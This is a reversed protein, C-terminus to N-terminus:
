SAEHAGAAAPVLFFTAALCGLVSVVLLGGLRANAPVQSVVLVGFGLAVALADVVIAPGTTSLAGAMAELGLQGARCLRRHRSLLHIAFDVGVGLTMGAFMSTAVGLPIGLWGMAAFISLVAAAPPLVCYLGWRLSRGLVAALAFIGLLSLGLSSLQTAVVADILAGSVAADGGIRLGLGHPALHRREYDRIEAELRREAAYDSGALYVTVLGRAFAGDVLQGLREEGRIRGYSQWRREAQEPDGPLRRSARGGPRTMFGVTALFRAPGLVGGVGPRTALFAELTGIRALVSPVLFPQSRIEYGLREGDRPRLWMRGSGRRRPMTLVVGGDRRDARAIWTSWERAPQAEGGALRFVRIRSGALRPGDAAAPLTLRHGDLAGAEVEGALRPAEAEVELLLRHSGLFQQDFRRTARAFASAPDFGALWSDQVEVRRVGDVAVVALVGAAALVATRRRRGLAALWAFARGLRDGGSRRPAVWRKPPVLVLVAPVVSLSWLLCVLVGFTTFLGFLRVPGIPSLTFSLFAVATTLSTKIVPPAMEDLTAGVLAAPQKGPDERVRDVFRRFIHIEDALGVATLIVPLVATTLYVPVELWGMLGFVIVLCGGAEALPLLAAAPRRFAALFVLGMVALAVPVLVGLDALIHHGLLAEAVPAGVVEVTLGPPSGSTALRRIEGALAVRDAEPPTGVLIAARGGDRSVLTGDYLEIRRLDDRLLAIEAPTEPLPDLLTRFRLTGTAVRFGRETALSLVDQPRVGELSLVAASLDRVRALAAPHFIGDRHESSLVVAIPDRVDFTERIARDAAVAPSRGPM